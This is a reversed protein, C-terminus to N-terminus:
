DFAVALRQLGFHWPLPPRGQALAFGMRLWLKPWAFASSCSDRLEASVNPCKDSDNMSM